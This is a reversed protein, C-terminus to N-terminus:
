IMIGVSNEENEIRSRLRTKTERTMPNGNVNMDGVVLILDSDRAGKTKVSIFKALDRFQGM